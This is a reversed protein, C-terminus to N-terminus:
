TERNEESHLPQFYVSFICPIYIFVSSYIGLAHFRSGLELIQRTKQFSNRVSTGKLDLTEAVGHGLDLYIHLFVLRESFLISSFNWTSSRKVAFDFLRIEIGKSQRMKLGAIVIVFIDISAAPWSWCFSGAFTFLRAGTTPNKRRSSISRCHIWEQLLLFPFFLSLSHGLFVAAQQSAESYLLFM